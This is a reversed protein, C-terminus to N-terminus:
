ILYLSLGHNPRELHAYQRKEEEKRPAMYVACLETTLGHERASTSSISSQLHPDGLRTVTTMLARDRCSLELTTSRTTTQRSHVLVILCQVHRTAKLRGLEEEKQGLM